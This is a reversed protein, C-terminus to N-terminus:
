ARHNECWNLVETLVDDKEPENLIEHYLGPYIKLTKDDSSVRRYLIESGQPLVMRDEGGHLLLLPVTLAGARQELAAMAAFFERLLRATLKGHFVRPDEVYSKVVEADRSVGRPDLKHLGLGPTVRALLRIILRLLRGPQDPTRLAAGTLIAGRLRDQCQLLYHGAVLGGMSHGLLFQTAGAHRQALVNHFTGLDAVYDDFAHVFGPTGASNGHGTQDLAAVAYNRAVFYHALATYRASHEGLGHCILLLASPEVQPAWIQFYILHGRAGIFSDETHIM